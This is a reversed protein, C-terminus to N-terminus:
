PEVDIDEESDGESLIRQLQEQCQLEVGQLRRLHMESETQIHQIREELEQVRLQHPCEPPEDRRFIEQRLEWVQLQHSTREHLLCGWSGVTIWLLLAFIFTSLVFGDACRSQSAEASNAASKINSKSDLAGHQKSDSATSLQEEEHADYQRQKEINRPKDNARVIGTSQNAIKMTSVNPPQGLCPTHTDDERITPGDEELVGQLPSKASVPTGSTATVAVTTASTASATAVATSDTSAMLRTSSTPVPSASSRPTKLSSAASPGSQVTNQRKRDKSNDKSDVTGDADNGDERQRKRITSTTM